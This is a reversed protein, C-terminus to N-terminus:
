SISRLRCRRRRSIDRKRHSTYLSERKRWPRASFRMGASPSRLLIVIDKYRAPRLQGTSEDRVPLKGALEHIKAAIM